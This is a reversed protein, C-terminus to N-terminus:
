LPEVIIGTKLRIFGIGRISALKSLIWELITSGDLSPRGLPRKGTGTLIRFDSKGEEMRAVYGILSVLEM